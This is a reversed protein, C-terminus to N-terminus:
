GEIIRVSALIWAEFAAAEKPNLRLIEARAKEIQSAAYSWKRGQMGEPGIGLAKEIEECLEAPRDGWKHADYAAQDHAEWARVLIFTRAADSLADFEGAVEAYGFMLNSILNANM